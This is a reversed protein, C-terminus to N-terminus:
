VLVVIPRRKLEDRLGGVMAPNIMVCRSEKGTGQGWLRKSLYEWAVRVLNRVGGGVIVTKEYAKQLGDFDIWKVGYGVHIHGFVHLTPKKRWVEDLLFKCGNHYADELHGKPPGHTILIDTDIPIKDKWVDRHRPYQFAWNGHKPTLPSGYIHLRRGNSCEISTSSDHLYIIDGWRLSERAVPDSGYLHTDDLIIDHNGAIVIKFSHPLSNIWELQAQLEKFTGSQTLDGAHILIEGAPIVPQSNHTDSICVVSIPKIPEFPLIPRWNYLKNALFVCPERIFQQWLSPRSRHLLADLGGGGNNGFM